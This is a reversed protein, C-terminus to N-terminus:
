SGLGKAVEAQMAGIAMMVNGVLKSIQVAVGEPMAVGLIKGIAENMSVIDRQIDAASKKKLELTAATNYVNLADLLPGSKDYVVKIYGSLEQAMPVPMVKADTAATVGKQLETAAQLVTGTYHTVQTQPPTNTACGVYGTVMLVTAVIYINRIAKWTRLTM